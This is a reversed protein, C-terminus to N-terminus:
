IEIKRKTLLIKKKTLMVKCFSPSNSVRIEGIEGESETVEILSSFALVSVVSVVFPGLSTVLMSAFCDTSVVVPFGSASVRLVDDEDFESLITFGDPKVHL